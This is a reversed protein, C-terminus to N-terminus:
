PCTQVGAGNVPRRLPRLAGDLEPVRPGLTVLAGLERAEHLSQVLHPKLGGASACVIWQAGEISHEVTEGGTYAFPVGRAHLAREFARLYGEAAMVPPADLGFDRELVTERGGGGGM